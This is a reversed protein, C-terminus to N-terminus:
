SHQEQYAKLKFTLDMNELCYIRLVEVIVSKKEKMVREEWKKGFPQENNQM